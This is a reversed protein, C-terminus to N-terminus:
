PTAVDIMAITEAAVRFARREADADRKARMTTARAYAKASMDAQEHLWKVIEARAETATVAKSSINM